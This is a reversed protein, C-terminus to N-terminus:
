DVGGAHAAPGLAASRSATQASAIATVARSAVSEFPKTLDVAELQMVRGADRIRRRAALEAVLRAHTMAHASTAMDDVIDSLLVTTGSFQGPVWTGRRMMEARLLVTNVEGTGAIVDRESAIAMLAQWVHSLNVDHFDGPVVVGALDFLSVADILAGGIVAREAEPDYLPETM